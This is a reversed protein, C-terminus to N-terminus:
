TRSADRYTAGIVFSGPLEKSVGEFVEKEAWRRFRVFASNWNRFESPLDRRPPGTRVRWPVAELFLRSDAATRGPSGRRGPLIEKIGDRM